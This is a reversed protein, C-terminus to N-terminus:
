KYEYTIFDLLHSSKTNQDYLVFSLIIKTIRVKTVKARFIM